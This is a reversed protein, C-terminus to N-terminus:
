NESMKSNLIDVIDNDTLILSSATILHKSIRNETDYIELMEDRRLFNFYYSSQIGPHEATYELFVVGFAAPSFELRRIDVDESFKIDVSSSSTRFFYYLDDSVLPTMIGNVDSVVIRGREAYESFWDYHNIVLFVDPNEMMYYDLALERANAEIISIERYNYNKGRIVSYCAEEPDNVYADGLDLFYKPNLGGLFRLKLYVLEIDNLQRPAIKMNSDWVVAGSPSIIKYLPSEQSELSAVGLNYGLPLNIDVFYEDLDSNSTVIGESILSSRLARYQPSSLKYRIQAYDNIVDEGTVYLTLELGWFMSAPCDEAVDGLELYEFGPMYYGELHVKMLSLVKTEAVPPQIEQQTEIPAAEPTIEDFSATSTEEVPETVETSVTPVEPKSTAVGEKKPSSCGSVIVSAIALTLVLKYLRNRKFM